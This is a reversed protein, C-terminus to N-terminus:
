SRHEMLRVGFFALYAVLPGQDLEAILANAEKQVKRPKNALEQSVSRQDPVSKPPVPKGPQQEIGEVADARQPLRNHIIPKIM